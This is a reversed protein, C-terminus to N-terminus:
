RFKPEIFAPFKQPDYLEQPEFGARISHSAHTAKTHQAM